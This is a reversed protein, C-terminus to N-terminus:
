DVSAKKSPFADGNSVAPNIRVGKITLESVGFLSMGARLSLRGPERYLEVCSEM